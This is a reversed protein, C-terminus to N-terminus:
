SKVTPLFHSAHCTVLHGARSVCPVDAVVSLDSETSGNMPQWSGLDVSLSSHDFEDVHVDVMESRSFPITNCDMM